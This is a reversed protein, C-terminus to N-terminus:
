SYTNLHDPSSRSPSTAFNSASTDPVWLTAQSHISSLSRTRSPAPVATTNRLARLKAVSLAATARPPATPQSRRLAAVKAPGVAGLKGVEKVQPSWDAWPEVAVGSERRRLEEDPLAQPTKHFTYIAAQRIHDATTNQAVDHMTMKHWLVVTGAPGSCEVPESAAKADALMQLTQAQWDPNAPAWSSVPGARAPAAWHQRWRPLHTGPWLTFGALCRRHASGFAAFPAVVCRRLWTPVCGCVSDGAVDGSADRVARRHAGGGVAGFPGAQHDTKDRGLGDSNPLTCYMGQSGQGILWGPGTRPLTLERTAFPPAGDPNADDHTQLGAQVGDDVYSPGVLEGNSNVGEPYLVEGRGLLQEAVGWLARANANLLPEEASNRIYFRSGVCELLPDGGPHAGNNLERRWRDSRLPVWSSPDDRRMQPLEEGLIRWMDDQAMECLGADVAGPLVLFGQEKFFAIQEPSLLAVQPLDPPPSMAESGILM